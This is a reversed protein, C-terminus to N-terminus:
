IRVDDGYGAVFQWVWSVKENLGLPTSDIRQKPIWL